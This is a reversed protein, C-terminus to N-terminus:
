EDEPEVMQYRKGMAALLQAIDPEQTNDREVRFYQFASKGLLMFDYDSVARRHDTRVSVLDLDYETVKDM